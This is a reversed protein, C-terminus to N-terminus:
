GGLYGLLGAARVRWASRTLAASHLADAAVPGEGELLDCAAEALSAPRARDYLRLGAGLEAELAASPDSVVAAGAMAAGIARECGGNGANLNVVVQADGYLTAVEAFPVNAIVRVNVRGEMAAQWGEGCLTLPLGADALASAAALRDHDRVYTLAARVLKMWDEDFRPELGIDRCAAGYAAAVSAEREAILRDVLGDLLRKAPSDELGAWSRRPIGTWRAALLVPTSRREWSTPPATPPEAGALGVAQAGEVGAHSAFALHSPHPWICRRRQSPAIMQHSLYVPHDFGWLVFEVGLVDYVSVGDARTLAGLFGGFSVVASVDGRSLREVYRHADNRPDFLEVAAGLTELGRTLARASVSYLHASELAQLVLITM